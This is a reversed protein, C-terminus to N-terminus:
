ETVGYLNGVTDIILGDPVEGGGARKGKFMYILTKTWPDSPKAPTRSNM